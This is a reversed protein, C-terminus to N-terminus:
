SELRRRFDPSWKSPDPLYVTILTVSTSYSTVVHYLTGSPGECLILCTPGRHADPEDQIIAPADWAIAKVLDEASLGKQRIRETAHQSMAARENRFAEVIEVLPDPTDPMLLM